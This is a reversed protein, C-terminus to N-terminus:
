NNGENTQQISGGNQQKVEGILQKGEETEQKKYGAEM